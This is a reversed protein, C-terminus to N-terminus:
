AKWNDRHRVQRYLQVIEWDVISQTHTTCNADSCRYHYKFRYPIQELAKRQQQRESPELLQAQAAWAEARDGKDPNPEVEEIVLDLMEAPRFIALSTRNEKEARRLECMSERIAPEVIMRRAEWGRETGIQSGTIEISDVDVRRSEPRPDNGPKRAKMRIPQYKRFQRDETLARFPVPYIRSWQPQGTDVMTLGAICSVEGYQRSLNPYAKVLPLLSFTKYESSHTVHAIIRVVETARSRPCLVSM